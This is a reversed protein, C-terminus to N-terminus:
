AMPRWTYFLVAVLGQLVAFGAALAPMQRPAAAALWLFVPFMTCTLRGMSMTGGMVLPPLLNVLLLVALAPGLRRWVPIVLAVVLVVAAGNLVDYPRSALFQTLGAESVADAATVLPAAGEFTRGWAEQQVSWQLPNGTLSGIFLSFIAVGAVPALTAAAAWRGPLAARTRHRRWVEVALPVMLLFGNPRTLGALLGWGAARAWRERRCELFAGVSALLFLSETYMAGHYVAFPYSATLVVAAAAATPDLMSRALQYILVLSWLFAVHSVLLGAVAYTPTDGGLVRALVRVLIPYAPFFAINQQGTELPHWRYGLRAIGYYWGADWRMPLNVLENDSVRVQPDGSPYGITAVAFVGVALVGARTAVFVPWSARWESTRVAATLLLRYWTLIDPRRHVSHRWVLLLVAVVLPGAPSTVSVRADGLSLRFGGGIAVAVALAVLVTAALDCATTWRPLRPWWPASTEHLAKSRADILSPPM